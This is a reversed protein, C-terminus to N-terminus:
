PVILYSQFPVFQNTDHCDQLWDLNVFNIDPNSKSIKEFDHNWMRNTIVYTVDSTIQRDLIGDYALIVRTIDLLTNDDYDGYSVYFHKDHFFDPIEGANLEKKTISKKKVPTKEPSEGEDKLKRKKTEPVQSFTYTKEPLLRSQDYCDLIWQKNVIFGNGAKQVQTFKPTNPFASILHTCKDTWDDHYMAGMATAKNRLESRLPNQFGS